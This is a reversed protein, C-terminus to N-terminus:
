ARGFLTMQGREAPKAHKAIIAQRYVQKRDLFAQIDRQLEKEGATLPATKQTFMDPVAKEAITAQLERVRKLKWGRGELYRELPDDSTQLTQQELVMERPLVPFLDGKGALGHVEGAEVAAWVQDEAAQQFDKWNYRRKKKGHPYEKAIAQLLDDEYEFGMESAMEDPPHGTKRRMFLPVVDFEETQVGKKHPRLGGRDLIERGLAKGGEEEAINRDEAMGEALSRIMKKVNSGHGPTPDPKPMPFDLCEGPRGSPCIRLFKECREVFKKKYRSSKTRVKKTKVCHRLQLKTPLPLRMPSTCESGKCAPAFDTCRWILGGGPGEFEQWIACNASDGDLGSLGAAPRSRSKTRRSSHPRDRMGYYLALLGAIWLWTNSGPSVEPQKIPYHPAVPPFGPGPPLEPGVIPMTIPKHIVPVRPRYIDEPEPPLMTVPEEPTPIHEYGPPPAAKLKYGRTTLAAAVEAATYEMGAANGYEQTKAVLKNFSLPSVNWPYIPFTELRYARLALTISDQLIEQRSVSQGLSTIIVM